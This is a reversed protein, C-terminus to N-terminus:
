SVEKKELPKLYKNGSDKKIKDYTEELFAATRTEGNNSAIGSAVVSLISV